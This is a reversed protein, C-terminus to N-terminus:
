AAKRLVRHLMAFLTRLTEDNLHERGGFKVVLAAAAREEPWEQAKIWEQMFAASGEDPASLEVQDLLEQRISSCPGAPVPPVAARRALTESASGRHKHTPGDADQREGQGLLSAEASQLYLVPAGFRRQEGQRYSAARAAQVAKGVDNNEVLEEYFTTLFEDADGPQMPYQMALVAPIGREVLLPALREFNETADSEPWDCLHLVVLEPRNTKSKVLSDVLIGSPQYTGNPLMIKFQNGVRRYIGVVHVIDAKTGLLKIVKDPHWGDVPEPVTALPGLREKLTALTRRCADRDEQYDPTDPLTLWLVVRLKDEAPRMTPRGDAGPRLYRSLALNTETGLFYGPSRGQDPRYLFEWPLLALDEASDEFCIRVRLTTETDDAYKRYAHLATGVSGSLILRWLLSGLVRFTEPVMLRGKRTNRTDNEFRAIWEWRKLWQELLDITERQLSDVKVTDPGSPVETNGTRPDRNLEGEITYGTGTETGKVTIKFELDNV